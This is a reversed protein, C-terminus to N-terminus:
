LTGCVTPEELCDVNTKIDIDEETKIRPEEETRKLRQHAVSTEKRETKKQIIIQSHFQQFM